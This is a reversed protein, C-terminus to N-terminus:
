KKGKDQDKKPFLAKILEEDAGYERALKLAIEAEDNQYSLKHLYGRLLFLNGNRPYEKMANRLQESAESLKGNDALLSIYHIYVELDKQIELSKSYYKEADKVNGRLKAVSALGTYGDSSKPNLSVIYTFDDEAQDINGNELNVFGRMMRAWENISDTELVANLDVLAQNIDQLYMFISARGSLMKVSRPNKSLGINYAELAGEYNDQKLRIEALNSWLLWNSKNAPKLRLAKITAEEAERWKSKSAYHSASDICEEYELDTPHTSSYQSAFTPLFLITFLLPCILKGGISSINNNVIRM